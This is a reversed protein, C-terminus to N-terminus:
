LKMRAFLMFSLPESGYTSHLSDPLVYASGLGGIGFKVHHWRLFDYIYGASFKTVDFIHGDRPDGPPFLEDKQVNEARAFLTHTDKFVVTSELLFAFLDNGPHNLNEGFALTTGWNIGEWHRQYMVSATDPTASRVEPELQEPSHINGYSIQASWNKTPNYTLRASYSDFRPLTSIGAIKTPNM